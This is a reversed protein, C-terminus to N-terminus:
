KKKQSSEASISQILQREKKSKQAYCVGNLGVLLLTTLCLKFFSKRSMYTFIVNLQVRAVCPLSSNKLQQNRKRILPTIVRKLERDKSMM